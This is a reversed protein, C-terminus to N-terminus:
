MHVQLRRFIDELYQPIPLILAYFTENSGGNVNYCTSTAYSLLVPNIILPRRKMKLPLCM